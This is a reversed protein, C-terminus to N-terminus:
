QSNGLATRLAARYLMGYGWVRVLGREQAERAKHALLHRRREGERRPAGERWTLLCQPCGTFCGGVFLHIGWTQAFLHLNSHLGAM